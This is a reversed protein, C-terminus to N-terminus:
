VECYVVGNNIVVTIHKKRLEGVIGDRFADELYQHFREVITVSNERVEEIPNRKEEIIRELTESTMDMGEEKMKDFTEMKDIHM